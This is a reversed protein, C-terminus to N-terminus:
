MLRIGSIEPNTPSFEWISFCNSFISVSSSYEESAVSVYVQPSHRYLGIRQHMDSATITMFLIQALVATGTAAVDLADPDDSALDDHQSSIMLNDQGEQEVDMPNRLKNLKAIISIKGMLKSGDILSGEIRIYGRTTRPLAVIDNVAFQLIGAQVGGSRVSVNFAHSESRLNIHWCLDFWEHAKDTKGLKHPDTKNFLAGCRVEVVPCNVSFTHLKPLGTVFIRDVLLTAPIPFPPLQHYVAGDVEVHDFEDEDAHFELPDIRVVMKVGGNIAGTEDIIRGEILTYGSEDPEIDFIDRTTIKFKGFTRDGSVAL